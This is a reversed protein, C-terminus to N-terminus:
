LSHFRCGAPVQRRFNRKAERSVQQGHTPSRPPSLIPPAGVPCKKSPRPSITRIAARSQPRSTALKTLEVKRGKWASAERTESRRHRDIAGQFAVPQRELTGYVGLRRRGELCQPVPNRDAAVPSETRDGRRLQSVHKPAASHLQGITVSISAIQDFGEKIRRQLATRYPMPTPRLPKVQDPMSRIDRM